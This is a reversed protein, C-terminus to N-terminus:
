DGVVFESLFDPLKRQNKIKLFYKEDQVYHMFIIFWFIEKVINLSSKEKMINGFVFM